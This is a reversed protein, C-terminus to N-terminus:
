LKENLSKLISEDISMPSIGLPKLKDINLSVDEVAPYNPIQYMSIKNLLSKDFSGIDCLKEGLEFRSIRESGGINIIDCKIEKIILKNIITAVDRASIPTRFQDTFLNIPQSKQLNDIMHRFYNKSRTIGYGFLLATRLILYNPSYKKVALEGLLKTEAYISLPNLKSDEKLFNGRYGAYVLDTSTYILKSNFQECLQALTETAKVNCEYYDKTTHETSIIPSTIAATHIVIDPNFSSFINKVESHNRLDIKVSNFNSCNGITSNFLSLLEFQHSFELNLYEGLFGSGGTILIKQKKM